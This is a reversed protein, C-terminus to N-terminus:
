DLNLTAQEYDLVNYEMEESNVQSRYDVVVTQQRDGAMKQGLIYNVDFMKTIAPTAGRAPVILQVHNTKLLRFIPEWIYVDKAAGFPNDIFITKGIAAADKGAANINSIYHIISILFQIYIGQSQGTSGVAEEYRLYRSRDKVHERKYLCLKISNMDAVIVSFLKKWSLRSKIYKLKEEPSSFTEAGAATETIYASMREKYQTERIYPVSLTIVPIVENDLTIRSLKPLRELETRINSCIQICREEFNDKIRQMDSIGQEVNDRELAICDNTGSIGSIMDDVEGATEPATINKRIEAALDYGNYKELSDALKMKEETLNNRKKQEERCVNEYKRRIDEYNEFSLEMGEEPIKLATEEQIALGAKSIIRELDKEMLLIDKNKEQLNKIEHNLENKESRIRVLQQRGEAIIGNPNVIEHREYEGYKEAYIKRAHWISGEIRNKQAEQASLSEEKLAAQRELEEARHKLELKEEVTGVYLIGKGMAEAAEEPTMGCLRLSDANKKMGNEYTKLLKERDASEGVRNLLIKRLAGGRIDTEEETYEREAKINEDRYPKFDENYRRVLEESMAKKSNIVKIVRDYEEKKRFLRDSADRNKRGYLSMNGDCRRVNEYAANLEANLEAIKRLKGARKRYRETLAAVEETEKTYGAIKERSFGSAEICGDKEKMLDDYAKRIGEYGEENIETKISKLINKVDRLDNEMVNCRDRNKEAQEEMRRIDERIIELETKLAAEDSIISIDRYVASINELNEEDGIVPIIHAGTKLRYVNRDRRIEERSKGGYIVYPMQPFEKLAKKREEENMALLMERGTRVDGYHKKLYSVLEEFYRDNEPIKGNEICEAYSKLEELGAVCKLYESMQESILNEIKNELSETNNEGYVNQITELRVSLKKNEELERGYRDLEEGTMTLGADTESLKRRLDNYKEREKELTESIVALRKECEDAAHEEKAAAEEAGASAVIEADKMLVELRGNISEIKLNESERLGQEKKLQGYTEKETKEAETIAAELENRLSNDAELEGNLKDLRCNVIKERAYALQALEKLIEENGMSSSKILERVEEYEKKNYMYEEYASAAEMYKLRDRCVAAEERLRKKESATEEILAETRELETYDSEIGAAAISKEAETVVEDLRKIENEQEKIKDKEENLRKKCLVLYSLLKEEYEKKKAFISKFGALRESFSELLEIQRNYGEIEEKRKALETLRTRIDLLTQAMVADDSDSRRIRNNYSKEIIGEILLDEVVKRTTRYNSEFYTRVHGETKNIGRIIEWQSEYLGYGSIFNQYDGKRDFIRVEVGFDKKELERLYSKLASYGVREGNKELHLNKIDNEGFERYFICYNFYEIGATETRGDADNGSDGSKRACFGTTMYRYGNKIDCADLKWEVLSHITTNGVGNRFMKEIPQKDDLTCNPILNQLLLLMLVSKGGGNALDYISNRCSFRMLFDDYFQTGFNYKVNNVRIRNIQPM